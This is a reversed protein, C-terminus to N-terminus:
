NGGNIFPIGVGGLVKDSTASKDPILLIFCSSEEGGFSSLRFDSLLGECSSFGFYASDPSSSRLMFDVPDDPDLDDSFVDGDLTSEFPEDPMTDGGCIDSPQPQFADQWKHLLDNGVGAARSCWTLLICMTPAENGLTSAEHHIFFKLKYGIFSFNESM